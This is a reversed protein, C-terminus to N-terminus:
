GAARLYRDLRGLAEELIEGLFVDFPKDGSLFHLGELPDCALTWRVRTGGPIEDFETIEIQAKSLPETVRDIIYGWRRPEEWIVMTEDHLCGAVSSKRITGVGYPPPGDYTV